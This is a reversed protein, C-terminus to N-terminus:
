LTVSEFPRNHIKAAYVPFQSPYMISTGVRVIKKANSIMYFDLFSKIHLEMSDSASAISDSASAGHKVSDMHTLTGPIIYVGSIQSVHRLFTTSDSTVLLARHPSAAKLQHVYNLCKNLLNEAEKKDALEKFHYEKFDGLLNQFRFVAADYDKGIERSLKDLRAQLIEGPKFLERFLEGWDYGEDDLSTKSYAANIRSLMDRNSYFHIQKKVHLNLLRTAHHEGRMYLVKSYKPNDTYEGEKLTWDYQAPSLFDELNFPYTYRIRFPYNHKKCYAYLSIIGKFRDCLGGHFSEGDIMAIILPKESSPRQLHSSKMAIKTGLIFEKVRHRIELMKYKKGEYTAM